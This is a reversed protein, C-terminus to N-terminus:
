SLILLKNLDEKLHPYYINVFDIIANKTIDSPLKADNSAQTFIIFISRILDRQQELTVADAAMINNLTIHLDSVITNYKKNM